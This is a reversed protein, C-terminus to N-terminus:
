QKDERFRRFVPHRYGGQRDREMCAFEIWQDLYKGPNNFMDRGLDHPIGHPAATSGDELTVTISGIRGLPDGAKVGQEPDDVGAIAETFDTIRGDYTEEPKLKMWGMIRKGIQYKHDNTKVMAGEYGRERFKHFLEMVQRADYAQAGLVDTVVPLGFHHALVSRVANVHHRRMLWPLDCEPVDFLHLRVMDQSLGDPVKKSRVWRYSDNFNGNVEIGMDLENVGAAYNFYAILQKALHEMNLLPKGAYSQFAVALCTGDDVRFASVRCRIDDIKPEVWVPYEFRLKGRSLTNGKAWTEGKMLYPKSM